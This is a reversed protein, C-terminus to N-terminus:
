IAFSIDPKLLPRRWHRARERTVIGIADDRESRRGGEALRARKM